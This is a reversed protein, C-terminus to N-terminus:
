FAFFTDTLSFVLSPAMTALAVNCNKLKMVGHGTAPLAGAALVPETKMIM